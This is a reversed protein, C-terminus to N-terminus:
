GHYQYTEETTIERKKAISCWKKLVRAIEDELTSEGRDIRDFGETLAANARDNVDSPFELNVIGVSGRHRQLTENM